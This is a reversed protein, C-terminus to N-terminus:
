VGKTKARLRMYDRVDRLVQTAQEEGGMDKILKEFFCKFVAPYVQFDLYRVVAGGRWCILIPWGATDDVEEFDQRLFDSFGKHVKQGYIACILYSDRPFEGNARERFAAAPLSDGSIVVLASPGNKIPDISSDAAASKMTTSITKFLYAYIDAAQHKLIWKSYTAINEPMMGRKSLM